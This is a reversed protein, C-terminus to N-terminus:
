STVFSHSTLKEPMCRPLCWNVFNLKRQWRCHLNKEIVTTKRLHLHLLKTANRLLSASVGVQQALEEISKYPSTELRAGNEGLMEEAYDKARLFPVKQEFNENIHLKNEKTPGACRSSKM